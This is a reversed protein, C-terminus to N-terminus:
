QEKARKGKFDPNKQKAKLRVSQQEKARKDKFDEPDRQEAKSRQKIKRKNQKEKKREAWFKVLPGYKKEYKKKCTVQYDVHKKLQMFPEGCGECIHKEEDELINMNDKFNEPDRQEAKSRKKKIRIKQKEEKREAWFKDLLGYKKEYKEKCTVQYDVHRKLRDFPKGCGECIDKEGDQLINMSDQLNEQHNAEDQFREYHKEKTVQSQNKKIAKSIAHPLNKTSNNKSAASSNM